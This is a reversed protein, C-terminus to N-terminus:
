DVCGYLTHRRVFDSRLLPIKTEIWVGMYPTVPDSLGKWTGPQTEIWVGMYPTVVAGCDGWLLIITEIWVGM